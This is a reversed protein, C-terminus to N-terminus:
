DHGLVRGAIKVLGRWEEMGYETARVRELAWASLDERLMRLAQAREARTGSLLDAEYQAFLALPEHAEDEGIFGAPVDSSKVADSLAESGELADLIQDCQPRGLQDWAQYEVAERLTYM